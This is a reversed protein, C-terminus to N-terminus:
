NMGDTVYYLYGYIDCITQAFEYDIGLGYVIFLAYGFWNGLSITSKWILEMAEAIEPEGKLALVMLEKFLSILFLLNENFKSALDVM